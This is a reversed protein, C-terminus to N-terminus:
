PLEKASTLSQSFGLLVVQDTSDAPPVYFLLQDSYQVEAGKATEELGVVAAVAGSLKVVAGTETPKVTEGETMSVAVIAGSSITALGLADTEGASTAFDISATSPLADQKSKRDAAILERFPDSEAFSAAFESEAGKAVLDAYQTALDAPTVLMLPSDPPIFAAGISAPASEPITANPELAVAYAVKYNSRPDDQQLMLAILPTETDEQDGVVTFVSRPWVDTAQPLSLLLPSSPIARPAAYDSVKGRVSYNSQRELLAAGTFRTAALESNRDADAETAVASIRTIIRELQPVTVAPTASEDTAEPVVAASDTPEPTSGSSSLDPWYNASCGSLLLGSILIVPMGVRMSARARTRRARRRRRPPKATQELGPGATIGKRRPGRSKRLHNLGLLYLVLGVILLLIGGAILPGAWPTANSVPWSLRVTAPAAAEGDSAILVSVDDPVSIPAIVAEDEDYESLWLDSGRPDTPLDAAQADDTTADGTADETAADEESDPDAPAATDTPAPSATETPEEAEDGGRITTTLEGTEEDVSLEAYESTGLWAMVDSTRGYAVFVTDSGTATVTQSGERSNLVAGSVLTYPLGGEVTGEAAVTSPPLFVTRQAIGLVIMAAAVVFAAIALVFRM